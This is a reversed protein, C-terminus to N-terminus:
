GPERDSQTRRASTEKRGSRGSRARSGWSTLICERPPHRDLAHTAIACDMALQRQPEGRSADDPREGRLPDWPRAARNYAGCSSEISLLAANANAAAVNASPGHLGVPTLGGLSRAPVHPPSFAPSIASSVLACTCM